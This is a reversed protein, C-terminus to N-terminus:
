HEDCEKKCGEFKRHGKRKDICTEEISVPASTFFSSSKDRFLKDKQTATNVCNHFKKKNQHCEVEDDSSDSDYKCASKKKSKMQSLQTMNAAVQIAKVENVTMSISGLFLGLM